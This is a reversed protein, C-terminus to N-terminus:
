QAEPNSDIEPAQSADSIPQLNINIREDREFTTHSRKSTHGPAEVVLTHRQTGAPRVVVAPNSEFEAGDLYIRATAPTAAVHLTVSSPLSPTISASPATAEKGRSRSEARRMFWRAGGALVVLAVVGAIAVVVRSRAFKMAAVFAVSRQNGPLLESPRKSGSPPKVDVVSSSIGAAAAEISAWSVVRRAGHDSGSRLLHHLSALTSSAEQTAETSAPALLVECLERAMQRASQFRDCRDRAVARKFWADFGAPVNAEKSPVPIPNLCISAILYPLYSGQFPRKGVLCEYAIVGLAWLDTRIDVGASDELQEPSMYYPTGLLSGTRTLAMPNPGAPTTKFSTSGFTKQIGFDVVKAIEEDGYQVLLVNDPKIDRHVINADHATQLAKGIHSCIRATDVPSLIRERELRAALSEGVLYEM